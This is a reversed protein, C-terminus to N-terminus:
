EYLCRAIEFDHHEDIDISEVWDVYVTRVRPQYFDHYKMLHEVRGAYLAGCPKYAPNTAVVNSDNLRLLNMAKYVTSSTLFPSTPQLLCYTDSPKADVSELADLVVEASNDVIARPRRHVSWGQSHSLAYRNKETKLFEIDDTPFDVSLVTHHFYGCGIAFLFKREALSEGNLFPKWNKYPLRKSTKKATIVAISMEDATRLM